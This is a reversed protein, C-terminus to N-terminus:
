NRRFPWREPEKLANLDGSQLKLKSCLRQHQISIASKWFDIGPSSEEKNCRGRTEMKDIKFVRM